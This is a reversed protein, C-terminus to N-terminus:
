KLTAVVMVPNSEETLTAAVEKMRASTYTKSMEIFDIASIFQIMKNGEIMEPHFPLGGDIDNNFSFWQKSKDLPM